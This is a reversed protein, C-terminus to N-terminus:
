RRRPSIDGGMRALLERPELEGDARVRPLEFPPDDSSALGHRVTTAARYGAARAAAIVRGDYMGAPYCLLEAEVGFRRRLERRAGALEERLSVHDLGRLDPHTLTHADVQWGQAVLRRVGWAPLGDAGVNHLTLNLVGPWRHRRLVPAVFRVHGLHGDDFTIVVPRPPLMAEGEWADLLRDLRVATYGERALARMQRAFTEPSTVLGPQATGPAPRGVVHYMLIPVRLARAREGGVWGAPPGASGAPATATRAPPQEPAGREEGSCAAPMGALVLLLLVRVPV